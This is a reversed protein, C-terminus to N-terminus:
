SPCSVSGILIQGPIVLRNPPFLAGPALYGIIGKSFFFDYGVPNREIQVTLQDSGASDVQIIFEEPVIILLFDQILHQIVDILQRLKCFFLIDVM